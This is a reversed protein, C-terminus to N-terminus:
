SGRIQRITERLVRLRDAPVIEGGAATGAIVPEDAIDAVALSPGKIHMQGTGAGASPRIRRGTLEAIQEVEDALRAAEDVEPVNGLLRTPEEAQRSRLRHRRKPRADM